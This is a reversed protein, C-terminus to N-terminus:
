IESILKLDKPVVFFYKITNENMNEKHKTIRINAKLIDSLKIM